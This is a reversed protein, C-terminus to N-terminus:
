WTHVLALIACVSGIIGFGSAVVVGLIKLSQMYTKTETVFTRLESVQEKTLKLDEENATSRRTHDKLVVAQVALTKNISAIDQTMQEFQTPTM